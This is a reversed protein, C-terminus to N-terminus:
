VTRMPSRSVWASTPSIALALRTVTLLTNWHRFLSSRIDLRAPYKMTWSMFRSDRQVAAPTSGATLRSGRRRRGSSLLDHPDQTRRPDQVRSCGPPAPVGGAAPRSGGRAPPRAVGTRDRGAPPLRGRGPGSSVGGGPEGGTGRPPRVQPLRVRLLFPPRNGHGHGPPQVIGHLRPGPGAESTQVPGRVAHATEHPKVGNVPCPPHQFFN